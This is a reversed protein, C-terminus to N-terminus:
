KNEMFKIQLVIASKDQYQENWYDAKDRNREIIEGNKYIKSLELQAAKLM